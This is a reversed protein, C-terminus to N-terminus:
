TSVPSRHPNIQEILWSTAEAGTRVWTIDVDLAAMHQIMITRFDSWGEGVAVSPFRDLGGIRSIHNTNWAILLETATGISGPLAICGVSMHVMRSIRDALSEAVIERTVYPNAGTRGPFLTPATVGVANAGGGAAGKSVAEMTGGYGGTVVDFGADALDRGVQEAEIWGGSDIETQGSGFVAVVRRTM